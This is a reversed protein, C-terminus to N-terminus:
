LPNPQMTLGAQDKHELLKFFQVELDDICFEWDLADTGFDAFFEVKYLKNWAQRSYEQM